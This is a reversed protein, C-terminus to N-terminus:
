LDFLGLIKAEEGFIFKLGVDLDCVKKPTALISGAASRHSWVAFLARAVVSGRTPRRTFDCQKM